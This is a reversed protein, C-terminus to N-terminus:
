RELRSRRDIWPIDLKAVKEDLFKVMEGISKPARVLLPIGADKSPLSILQVREASKPPAAAIQHLSNADKLSVKDQEGVIFMMSINLAPSSLYRLSGPAALQGAKIKPSIMVLARVDQGRPTRNAAVANDDFPVQKWDAEAFALAVPVTVDCAV